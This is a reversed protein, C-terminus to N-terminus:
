YQQGSISVVQYSSGLVSAFFESDEIKGGEQRGKRAEGVGGRELEGEMRGNEKGKRGRGDEKGREKRGGGGPMKEEEEEEIEEKRVDGIEYEKFLEFFGVDRELCSPERELSPTALNLSELLTYFQTGFLAGYLSDDPLPDGDTDNLKINPDTPIHSQKIGIVGATHLLELAYKRQTMTIGTRNRPFEIGLYYNLNGLVKISFKSDLYQKFYHILTGNNGALLIDDVYILMALIM